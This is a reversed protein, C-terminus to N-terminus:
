FASIYGSALITGELIEGKFSFRAFTGDYTLLSTKFAVFHKKITAVSILLMDVRNSMKQM